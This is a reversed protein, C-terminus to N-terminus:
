EGAWAAWPGSWRTMDGSWGGWLGILFSPARYNAAHVLWDRASPCSEAGGGSPM